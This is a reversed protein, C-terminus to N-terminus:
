GMLIGPRLRMRKTDAILRVLLTTKGSGLFGSLIIVPILNMKEYRRKRNHLLLEELAVYRINHFDTLEIIFRM